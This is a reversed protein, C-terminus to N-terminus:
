LVEVLFFSYKIQAIEQETLVKGEELRQQLQFVIVMDGRKLSLNSRNFAIEKDLLKTLFDATAQHSIFSIFANNELIEQAVNFSIKSIKVIAETDVLMNISFANTLYITPM